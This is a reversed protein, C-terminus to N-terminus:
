RLEQLRSSDEGSKVEIMFQSSADTVGHGDGGQNSGDSFRGASGSEVVGSEQGHPLFFGSAQFNGQAHEGAEHRNTRLGDLNPAVTQNDRLAVPAAEQQGLNRDFVMPIALRKEFLRAALSAQRPIGPSVVCRDLSEGGFDKSVGIDERDASYKM